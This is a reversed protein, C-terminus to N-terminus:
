PGNYPIFWLIDCHLLFLTVLMWRQWYHSVHPNFPTTMAIDQMISLLHLPDSTSPYVGRLARQTHKTDLCLASCFMIVNEGDSLTVVSGNQRWVARQFVVFSGGHIGAIGQYCKLIIHRSQILYLASMWKIIKQTVHSSNSVKYDNHFRSPDQKTKRHNPYARRKDHGWREIREYQDFQAKPMFLFMCQVSLLSFYSPNCVVYLIYSTYLSFPVSVRFGGRGGKAWEM